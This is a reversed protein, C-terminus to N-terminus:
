DGSGEAQTAQSGLPYLEINNKHSSLLAQILALCAEITTVCYISSDIAARRIKFSDGMEKKGTFTHVVLDIKKDRLLEVADLGEEKLKRVLVTELGLEKLYKSTGLTAYLKLGYDEVLKKLEDAVQMLEEKDKNRLSLFISKIDGIGAAKLAKFYALSFVLSIGMVEGTSKMEPSLAFDVGPLKLFPFVVSKVAYGGVIKGKNPPNTLLGLDM